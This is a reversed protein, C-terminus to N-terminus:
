NIHKNLREEHRIIAERNLDIRTDHRELIRHINERDKQSEKLGHMLENLTEQLNKMTNNNKNMASKFPNVVLKALTVITIIAGAITSVQILTVNLYFM